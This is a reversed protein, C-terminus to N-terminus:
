PYEYIPTPLDAVNKTNSLFSIKLISTDPYGGIVILRWAWPSRPVM